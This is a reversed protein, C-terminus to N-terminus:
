RREPSIGAVRVVDDGDGGGGGGLVMGGAAMVVEMAAEGNCGDGWWRLWKVVGSTAMVGDGGVFVGGGSCWRNVMKIMVVMTAMVEAAAVEGGVDGGDEDGSGCW